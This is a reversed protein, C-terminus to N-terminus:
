QLNTINLVEYLFQGWQIYLLQLLFPILNWEILHPKEVVTSYDENLCIIYISALYRVYINRWNIKNWINTLEKTFSLWAVQQVWYHGAKRVWSIQLPLCPILYSNMVCYNNNDHKHVHGQMITIYNWVTSNCQAATYSTWTYTCTYYPIVSCCFCNRFQSM